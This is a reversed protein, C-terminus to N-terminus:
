ARRATHLPSSRVLPLLDETRRQGLV